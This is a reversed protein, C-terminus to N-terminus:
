WPAWVEVFIPLKQRKASNLAKPYDDNIFPLNSADAFVSCLLLIFGVRWCRRM